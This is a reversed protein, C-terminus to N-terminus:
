AGRAQRRCSGGASAAPPGPHPAQVHTLKNDGVLTMRGGARSEVLCRNVTRRNAQEGTRVGDWDARGGVRRQGSTQQRIQMEMPRQMQMTGRRGAGAGLLTSLGVGGCRRLCQLKEGRAERRGRCWPQQRRGGPTNLRGGRAETEQSVDGQGGAASTIAVMLVRRKGGWRYGDATAGERCGAKGAQRNYRCAAAAAAAM